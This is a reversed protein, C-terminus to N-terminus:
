SRSGQAARAAAGQTAVLLGGVAQAASRVPEGYVPQSIGTTARAIAILESHSTLKDPQTLAGQLTCHKLESEM